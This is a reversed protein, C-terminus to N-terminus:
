EYVAPPSTLPVAVGSLLRATGKLVLFPSLWMLCSYMKEESCKEVHLVSYDTVGMQQFLVTRLQQAFLAGLFM